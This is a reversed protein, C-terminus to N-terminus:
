VKALIYAGDANVIYAGGANVLYAFGAPPPPFGGHEATVNGFGGSGIAQGQNFQAMAESPAILLGVVCTRRTLMKVM